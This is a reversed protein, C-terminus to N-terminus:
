MAARRIQNARREIALSFAARALDTKWVEASHRIEAMLKKANHRLLARLRAEALPLLASDAASLLVLGSRVLVEPIVVIGRGALNAKATPSVCDPVCEVILKAQVRGASSATVQMPAQLALVDCPCQPLEAGYAHEAGPYGFLMRERQIHSELLAVDVGSNNLIAGSADSMMIIRAGAGSAPTGNGAVSRAMALGLGAGGQIAYTRPAPQGSSAILAAIWHALLTWQSEAHRLAGVHSGTDELDYDLWGHIAPNGGYVRSVGFFGPLIARLRQSYRRFLRRTEPESIQSLDSLIGAAGGRMALGLLACSLDNALASARMQNLFIDPGIALEAICGCSHPYLCQLTSITAAAGDSRSAPLHLTLEMEAHRMQELIVDEVDIARAMRELETMLLLHPDFGQEADQDIQPLLTEPNM